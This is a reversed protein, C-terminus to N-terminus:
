QVIGFETELGKVSVTKVKIRGVFRFRTIKLFVVFALPGPRSVNARAYWWISHIEACGYIPKGLWYSYAFVM